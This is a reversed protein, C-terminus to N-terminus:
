WLCLWRTCRILIVNQFLDRGGCFESYLQSFRLLMGGYCAAFEQGDVASGTSSKTGNYYLHGTLDATHWVEMLWTYCWLDSSGTDLMLWTEQQPTGWRVLATYSSM